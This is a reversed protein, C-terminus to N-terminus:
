MRFGSDGTKSLEIIMLEGDTKHLLVGTHYYGVRKFVIKSGTLYPKLEELTRLDNSAAPYIWQSQEMEYKCIIKFMPHGKRDDIRIDNGFIKNMKEIVLLQHGKGNTGEIGLFIGLPGEMLQDYRIPIIEVPSLNRQYVTSILIEISDEPSNPPNM